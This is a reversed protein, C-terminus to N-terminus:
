MSSSCGWHDLGGRGADVAPRDGFVQADDGALRDQAGVDELVQEGADAVDDAAAGAGVLLLQAPRSIAM